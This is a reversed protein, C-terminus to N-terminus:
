GNKYTESLSYKSKKGSIPSYIIHDCIVPIKKNSTYKKGKGPKLYAITVHPHYDKFKNTHPFERVVKNMMHPWNDLVDYKLVDFIENSFLTPGQLLVTTPVGCVNEKQIATLLEKPEVEEHFGYLLTVHPEEELGYTPDNPDTYIDDPDISDHIESIDPFDLYVMLCGFDNKHTKGETLLENFKRIEM